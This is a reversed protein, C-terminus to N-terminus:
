AFEFFGVAMFLLSVLERGIVWKEVPHNTAAKLVKTHGLQGVFMELPRVLQTTSVLTSRARLQLSRAARCATARAFHHRLRRRGPQTLDRSVSGHWLEPDSSRPLALGRHRALGRLQTHGAPRGSM